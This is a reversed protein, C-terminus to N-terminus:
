ITEHCFRKSIFTKPFTTTQFGFKSRRFLSSNDHPFHVLFSSEQDKQPWFAQNNKIQSYRRKGPPRVKHSNCSASYIAKKIWALCIQNRLWLNQHITKELSLRNIQCGGISQCDQWCQRNTKSSSYYRKTSSAHMQWCHLLHWTVKLFIPKKCLFLIYYLTM